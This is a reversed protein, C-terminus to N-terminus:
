GYTSDKPQWWEPLNESSSNTLIGAWSYTTSGGFLMSAVGSSATLDLNPKKAHYKYTESIANILVTKGTGGAGLVLLLLQEPKRDQIQALLHNEIMNHVM